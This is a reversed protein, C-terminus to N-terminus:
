GPALNNEVQSSAISPLNDIKVIYHHSLFLVDMGMGFQFFQFSFSTMTGLCTQSRPPRIENSTLTQSHDEKAQNQTRWM